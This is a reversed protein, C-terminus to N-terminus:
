VDINKATEKHKITMVVNPSSKFWNTFKILATEKGEWNRSSEKFTCQIKETINNAM